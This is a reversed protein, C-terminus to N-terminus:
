RPMNAQMGHMVHLDRYLSSQNVCEFRAITEYIVFVM